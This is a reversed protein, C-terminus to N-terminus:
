RQISTQVMAMLGARTEIQPRWGAAILKDPTAVLSGGLRHWINAHGFVKFAAEFLKPPVSIMGPRRGLAERMTAIIEALTLASPDAVLYTENVAAPNEIAFMIAAILNDLGALSRRNDFAGFPLPWPSAALKVLSALNGKAGAGYVLVPRLVTFPIGASRVAAEAALKSRGYADTPNPEDAETLIHDAAPGSQARISSIFVFRNPSIEKAATALEATARHNVRDYHSEPISAGAHAIGALHVIVDTGALMPKWDIPGALDPQPLIEVGDPMRPNPSKRLAIRVVHGAATLKSIM